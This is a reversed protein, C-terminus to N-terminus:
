RSGCVASNNLGTQTGDAGGALNLDQGFFGFAGSGAGSGCQAGVETAQQRGPNDLYRDIGPTSNGAALAPVVASVALAGAFALAFIKTKM